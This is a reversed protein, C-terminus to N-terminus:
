VISPKCKSEKWKQWEDLLAPKYMRLTHEAARLINERSADSALRSFEDPFALAVRAWDCDEEFWGAGAFPARALPGMEELRHMAVHYGGHGATSYFTIGDAVDTESQADGWPTHKRPKM